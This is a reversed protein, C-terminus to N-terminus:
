CQPLIFVNHFAFLKNKFKIFFNGTALFRLALALRVEAPIAQRFNTDKRAILPAVKHLLERFLEPHLRQFSKYGPLDERELEKM